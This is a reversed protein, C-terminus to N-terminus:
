KKLKRTKKHTRKRNQKGADDASIPSNTHKEAARLALADETNIMRPTAMYRVGMM